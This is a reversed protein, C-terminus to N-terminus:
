GTPSLKLQMTQHNPSIGNRAGFWHHATKGTDSLSGSDSLSEIHM